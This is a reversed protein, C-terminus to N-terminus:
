GDIESLKVLRNEKKSLNYAILVKMISITLDVDIVPKGTRVMEFFHFLTRRFAVFNNNLEAHFRNNEGFFDLQFTKVTKSLAAIEFLSGDKNYLVASDFIAKNCYVSEVQFPMCGYVADLMHIGYKEMNNLVTGRILKIAGYNGTNARFSDLEGSYRFGSCSMLRGQELYPKFYALEDINLTLPKDIFVYCGAELFPKAMEYHFEYDDRALLVADVQGVMDKYDAVVNAIKAAAAIRKSEEASQTWVHTITVGEFGIDAKDQACIYNYIVDWGSEKLGIKDYGNVICSFSYPHGNGESLGIVGVKIM